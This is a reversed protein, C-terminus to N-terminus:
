TQVGTSLVGKVPIGLAKIDLGEMARVAREWQCVESDSDYPVVTEPELLHLIPM